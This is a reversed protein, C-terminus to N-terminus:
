FLKFSKRPNIEQNPDTTNVLGDAVFTFFAMLQESCDAPTQCEDLAKQMLELWRTRAAVTIPFAAHRMRLRPHGREQMYTEDRGIRFCMFDALRKEAGDWDNPPYMPSIIDDTRLYQYFQHIIKRIGSEELTEWIYAEDIM